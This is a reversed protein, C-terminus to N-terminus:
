TWSDIDDEDIDDEAVLKEPEKRAVSKNTTLPEVQLSTEGSMSFSREAPVHLQLNRLGNTMLEKEILYRISDMLNTQCNIWDVIIPLENKKTKLSINDGAKKPKKM